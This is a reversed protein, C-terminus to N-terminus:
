QHKLCYFHMKIIFREIKLNNVIGKIANQSNLEDYYFRTTVMNWILLYSEKNRTDGIYIHSKLNVINSTFKLPM